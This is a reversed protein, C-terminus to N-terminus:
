DEQACNPYKGWGSIMDELKEVGQLTLRAEELSTCEYAERPRREFYDLKMFGRDESLRKSSTFFDHYSTFRKSHFDAEFKDFWEQDEYLFRQSGDEMHLKIYQFVGQRESQPVECNWNCIVEKTVIGEQYAKVKSLEM